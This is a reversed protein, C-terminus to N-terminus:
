HLKHWKRKIQFRNSLEAVRIRDNSWIRESVVDCETGIFHKNKDRKCSTFRQTGNESATMHIIAPLLYVLVCFFLLDNM